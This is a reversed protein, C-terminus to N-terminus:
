IKGDSSRRKFKFVGRVKQVFRLTDNKWFVMDTVLVTTASILVLVASKEIWGPITADDFPLVKGVTFILACICLTVTVHSIFRMISRKLINKGLYIAYQFSRFTAAALTGVAVGVIGFKVVAAVSIIINMGAEAFAGNRTQKYHGAATTIIYYPIRFCTFLGALTLIIGFLERDYSVDTVGRTYLLAFPRIMTVTVSYVVSAASFVIIEFIGLNEHMLEYEKKAYMNGFAAGFSTTCNTVVKHIAAMVQNYVTYVSVEKIGAFITLVIIDTNTNVFNAVVHGLADWRQNIAKMDPEAHRDIRYHKRVYATVVIPTIAFAVTSGLKVLHIGAGLKILIAALVTNTVVSTIRALSTIGQKQDAILLIQYTLGFYYQIFTSMAIIIVLTFSFLWDFDRVIWLPYIAAFIVVSVLFILAVRRLFRETAVVISSIRADNKEALPKYLAARTVGGLGARMLSICSIFQSISSTIGNYSSGFAQLILRPLILGCIVSVIENSFSAVTNIFAKKGRNRAM